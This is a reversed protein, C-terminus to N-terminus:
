GTRGDAELERTVADLLETIDFPKPVIRKVQPTAKLREIYASVVIVPVQATAPDAQLDALVANGDKGPLMLDLLVLDAGEKKVTPAASEGDAVGVVRYSEAGLVFTELDRIEGDDEVVVVKDRGPVV